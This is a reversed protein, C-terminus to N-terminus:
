TENTPWVICANTGNGDSLSVVGCLDVTSNGINLFSFRDLRRVVWLGSDLALFFKWLYRNNSPPSQMSSRLSVANEFWKAERALASLPISPLVGRFSLYLVLHRFSPARHLEHRKPHHTHLPLTQTYNPLMQMSLNSPMRWVRAAELTGFSSYISGYVVAKFYMDFVISAECQAISRSNLRDTNPRECGGM